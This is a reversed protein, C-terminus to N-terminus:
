RPNVKESSSLNLSMSVAELYASIKSLTCGTGDNLACKETCYAPQDFTSVFPCTRQNTFDFTM